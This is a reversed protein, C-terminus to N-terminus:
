DEGIMQEVAAWVPAERRPLGHDFATLSEQFQQLDTRFAIIGGDLEFARATVYVKV